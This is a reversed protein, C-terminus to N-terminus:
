KWGAILENSNSIDFIRSMVKLSLEHLGQDLSSVCDSVVIPYFGRNSADRVSSEVGIETAIGTFIITKIGRNRLMYEFHTGIFISATHKKLVTENKEPSLEEYIQSEVSEEPMFVPLNAPDNIGTRKMLFYYQYSSMYEKPLPTIKTYFVPLNIKRAESLLVKVNNVFESKNFINNVLRNQIDWLVLASWRPDAIERLNEFIEVNGVKKM